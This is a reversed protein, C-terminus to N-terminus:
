LKVDPCLRRIKEFLVPYNIPKEIFDNAGAEKGELRYRYDKYVATMLIIKTGELGPTKRIMQCLEFGHIGPFLLLDILVLLPKQKKIIEFGQDGTDAQNVAFGKEVLVTSIHQLIQSDDDVVVVLPKNAETKELDAEPNGPLKPVPMSVTPADSAAGTDLIEFDDGEDMFILDDAPSGISGQEAKKPLSSAKLIQNKGNFKANGLARDAAETLDTIDDYDPWSACGGSFTACFPGAGSHHKINSFAERTQELIQWARDISMDHFIIASEEGGYRGVTAFPSLRKKLLVSLAKLMRDGEQHSYRENVAKFDDLDILALVFPAGEVKAKEGYHALEKQFESHNPLGTLSDRTLYARLMRARKIRSSLSYYLFKYKVPKLIFDDAGTNLAELQKNVETERSLYVIPVSLFRTDQRIIRSLDLGSVQPMYLDMLILDPEFQILPELAKSSDTASEIVMGTKALITTMHDVLKEDDDIIFLRYPTEKRNETIDNVRDLLDQFDLPKAFCNLSGFRFATQWVNLGDGRPCICIFPLKPRVQQLMVTMKELGVFVGHSDYFDLALAKPKESNLRTILDAANSFIQIHFGYQQLQTKINEAGSADEGLWFLDYSGAAHEKHRKPAPPSFAVGGGDPKEAAGKLANLLGFLKEQTTEDFPIGGDRVERIPSEMKKAAESLATYGFTTGSGALSHVLRYFESLPEEGGNTEVAQAWAKSIEELRIPLMRQYEQQLSQLKQQYVGKSNTM